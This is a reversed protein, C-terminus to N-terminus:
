PSRPDQNKCRQLVRRLEGILAPDTRCCGGILRAGAQRWRRATAAIDPLDTSAQWQSAEADFAEGSNPYVVIPKDSGQALVEILSEIWVPATCNVGLALVAPSGGLMAAAERLPEGSSLHQGDRCSFSFWASAGPTRHLLELLARAEDLCPITECALLDAGSDSLIQWRPLHFDVLQAVSRAYNGRYESGDHLFAGYPGISAAVWAAASPIEMAVERALQVSRRLLGQAQTESLGRAAFGQVTAQYSATVLVQAGAALYDRHLQQIAEPRELLVKASWLPDRLDFGRQELVTALGGDLILVDDEDLRRSLEAAGIL